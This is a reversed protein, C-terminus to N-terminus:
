LNHFINERPVPRDPTSSSVEEICNFVLTSILGKGSWSPFFSCRCRNQYEYIRNIIMIPPINTSYIYIFLVLMLLFIRVMLFFILQSTPPALFNDAGQYLLEAMRHGLVMYWHWYGCHLIGSSSSRWHLHQSFM